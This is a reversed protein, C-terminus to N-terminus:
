RDAVMSAGVGVGSGGSDNKRGREYNERERWKETAIEGGQRNTMM